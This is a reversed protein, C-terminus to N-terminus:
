RRRARRYRFPTQGTWRKFARIFSPVHSFGLLFAVESFAIDQSGVYQLALQRRLDDLLATFTTGERGLRRSLTRSSMSLRRAVRAASPHGAPLQEFVMHRVNEALNTSKPLQELMLDAQKCVLAHLEADATPIPADLQDVDFVFGCYPAGFRVTAPAFTREYEIADQPAAHVFWCELRSVDGLLTCLHNTFLGSVLFDEAATPLSERSDLRFVARNGRLELRVDVAENVLPFYRAAVQIADRMTPASRLTYDFAGADGLSAARGAKLGLVQDGTVRVAADLQEHALAIPTRGESDIGPLDDLSPNAREDNEPLLQLFFPRALRNSYCPQGLTSVSSVTPVNYVMGTQSADPM